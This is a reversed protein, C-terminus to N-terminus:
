LHQECRAMQLPAIAGSEELWLGGLPQSIGLVCRQFALAGLAGLAVSAAPSPRTSKFAATSELFCVACGQATRYVLGGRGDEAWGMLVWPPPTIAQAPLEALLGMTPPERAADPNFDKLASKLFSMAPKGADEADLLFGVEAASIKRSPPVRVPGGGAALYALAVSDAAGGESLAVAGANLLAEQGKGGVEPLLIQRAYRKIHREKLPM